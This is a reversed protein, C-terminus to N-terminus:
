NLWTSSRALIKRAPDKEGDWEIDAQAAAKDEVEEHIEGGTEEETLRIAIAEGIISCGSMEMKRKYNKKRTVRQLGLYNKARKARKKHESRKKLRVAAGYEDVTAYDERKQMTPM